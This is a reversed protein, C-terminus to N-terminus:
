WINKIEERKVSYNRCFTELDTDNEILMLDHFTGSSDLFGATKEGTCISSKIAPTQDAYDEIVSKKVTRHFFKLM